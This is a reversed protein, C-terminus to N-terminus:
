LHVSHELLPLIAQLFANRLVNLAVATLDTDPSSITGHIPIRTAVQEKPKRRELVDKVVEVAGEWMLRLPNDKDEKVDQKWSFVEVDELAPRVYGEVNGGKVAAEGAMSFTGKQIDLKGRRKFFANFPRLDLAKLEFDMDLDPPRSLMDARVSVAMDGGGAVHAAARIEAFLEESLALSNSLNSAQLQIGEVRLILPAASEDAFVFVGDTIVLKEVKVPFVHRVVEKRSRAEAEEPAKGAAPGGADKENRLWIEPKQLVASFVLRGRFLPKWQLSFNLREVGVFLRSRPGASWIRVDNLQFDGALLLVDVDKVRGGYGEM